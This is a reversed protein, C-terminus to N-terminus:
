LKVCIGCGMHFWNAGDLTFETNNGIFDRGGDITYLDTKVGMIILPRIIYSDCFGYNHSVILKCSTEYGMNTIIQSASNCLKYKMVNQGDVGVAFIGGYEKDEYSPDVYIRVKVNDGDANITDNTIFFIMKGSTVNAYRSIRLVNVNGKKFTAYNLPDKSTSDSDSPIVTGISIKNASADKVYFNNILTPKDNTGSHYCAFTLNYSQMSQPVYLFTDTISAGSGSSTISTFFTDIGNNTYWAESIETTDSSSARPQVHDTWRIAM